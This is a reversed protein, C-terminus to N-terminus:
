PTWGAGASRPWQAGRQFMAVAEAEDVDSWRVYADAVAFRMGGRLNACHVADAAAAVVGIRAESATPVAVVVREAGLRRVAEVAVLMTFGSALGDDVLVVTRGTYDPAPRDGRFAAVRRAVKARTTAVGAAVDDATLGFWRVADHNVRVSGDFAVAGYGAETNGPPTMKSVVAVDVPLGLREAIAVAVPVGGAPVAVITTATGRLDALMGALVRGADRRDAFVHVRDRLDPLHTVDDSRAAMPVNHRPPV